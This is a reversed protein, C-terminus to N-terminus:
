FCIATVVHRKQELQQRLASGASRPGFAADFLQRHRESRGPDFADEDRKAYARHLAWDLLRLHHPEAIEPSAGLANASLALLPTRYVGLYLTDNPRTPAPYLRLRGGAVYYALPDGTTSEWGPCTRDLVAHPRQQLPRDPQSALRVWSVELIAPHLRVWATAALGIVAVGVTTEDWLLRARICAESEADAFYGAVEADSWLYPTVRDDAALRFAAILEALTM